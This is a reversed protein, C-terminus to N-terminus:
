PYKRKETFLNLSHKFFDAFGQYGVLDDANQEKLDYYYNGTSIEKSLSDIPFGERLYPHPKATILFKESALSEEMSQYIHDKDMVLCIANHYRATIDGYKLALGGYYALMEEDTMHKGDKTRVHIGPQLDDPLGYLYLGSDCSFVPMKYHEYYSFAKQRANELLTSGLEPVKLIEGEMDNLGLLNIGLHCVNRRMASLKAPNTTGYLLTIM